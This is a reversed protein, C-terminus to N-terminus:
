LNRPRIANPAAHVMSRMSFHALRASEPLATRRCFPGIHQPLRALAHLPEGDVHRFAKVPADLRSACQAPHLHGIVQALRQFLEERRVRLMLRLNRYDYFRSNAEIADIAALRVEAIM